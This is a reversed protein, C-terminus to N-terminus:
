KIRQPDLISHLWSFSCLLRLNWCQSDRTEELKRTPAQTPFSIFLHAACYFFFNTILGFYNKRSLFIHGGLSLYFTEFWWDPSVKYPPILHSVRLHYQCICTTESNSHNLRCDKLLVMTCFHCVNLLFWVEFTSHPDKGPSATHPVLREWSAPCRCHLAAGPWGGSWSPLYLSLRDAGM